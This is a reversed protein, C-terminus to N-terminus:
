RKNIAIHRSVGLLCTPTIGKSRSNETQILLPTKTRTCKCNLTQQAISTSGKIQQSIVDIAQIHRLHVNTPRETRLKAANPRFRSPGLPSAWTSSPKRSSKGQCRNIYGASARRFHGRRHANAQLRSIPQRNSTHKRQADAQLSTSAPSQKHAYKDSVKLRTPLQKAKSKNRDKEERSAVVADERNAFSGLENLFIGLIAKDIWFDTAEYKPHSTLKGHLKTGIVLEIVRMPSKLNSAEKRPEDSAQIKATHIQSVNEDLVTSVRTQKDAHGDELQLEIEYENIRKEQAQAVPSRVPQLQLRKAKVILSSQSGQDLFVSAPAKRRNNPNAIVVKFLLSLVEIDNNNPTSTDLLHTHTSSELRAPVFGQIQTQLTGKIGSPMSVQLQGGTFLMQMNEWAENQGLSLSIQESEITGNREISVNLSAQSTWQTCSKIMSHDHGDCTRIIRHGISMYLNVRSKGKTCSNIMPHGQHSYARIIEANIMSHGNHGTTARIIPTTFARLRPRMTGNVSIMEQIRLVQTDQANSSHLITAQRSKLCLVKASHHNMTPQLVLATSTSAASLRSAPISPTKLTQLEESIVANHDQKSQQNPTNLTTLGDTKTTETGRGQRSAFNIPDHQSPRVPSLPAPLRNPQNPEATFATLM